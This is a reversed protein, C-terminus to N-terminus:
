RPGRSGRNQGIYVQPIKANTPSRRYEVTGSIRIERLETKEFDWFGRLAPVRQVIKSYTANLFNLFTQERAIM